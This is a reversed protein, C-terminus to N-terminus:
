WIEGEVYEVSNGAPDRFYVSRGGSPWTITREIEVDNARLADAAGDVQDVRFAIHGHGNAGHPPVFRGPMNTRSPDFVLLVGGDELRFAASHEDPPHIATLGVVDCYFAVLAPVDDAYLVTEYVSQVRPM